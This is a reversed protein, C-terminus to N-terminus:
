PFRGEDDAAMHKAFEADSFSLAALVEMSSSTVGGKNTSADKYLVCGRDIM